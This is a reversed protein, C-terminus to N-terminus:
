ETVVEVRSLRWLALAALLVGAGGLLTASVVPDTPPTGSVGFAASAVSLVDTVPSAYRVLTSGTIGAVVAVGIYLSLVVGFIGAGAYLSRSTLSSLALALGTFFVTALLGTAVFAGLASLTVEASALELLATITVGIVGPVIAALAIWGGCATAKAALYDLLRIPRTLYLTISRSGIDEAISGAGATAAVILVLFPWAPSEYPAYYTATTVSGILSAFEVTLTVILIVAIFSLALAALTGWGARHVFERRAIALTRSGLGIRAYSASQYRPASITM